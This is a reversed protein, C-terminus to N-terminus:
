ERLSQGLTGLNWNGNGGATFTAAYSIGFGVLLLAVILLASLAYRRLTPPHNKSPAEVRERERERTLRMIKM